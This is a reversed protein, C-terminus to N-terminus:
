PGARGYAGPHSQQFGPASRGHVMPNAGYLEQVGDPYHVISQDRIVVECPTGEIEIEYNRLMEGNLWFAIARFRQTEPIFETVWAGSTNLAKALNEVLSEFFHEGTARATGELIARLASDADLQVKYQDDMSYVCFLVRDNSRAM